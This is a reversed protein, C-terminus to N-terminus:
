PIKGSKVNTYTHQALTLSLSCLLYARRQVKCKIYHLLPAITFEEDNRRTTTKKKKRRRKEKEWEACEEMLTEYAMSVACYVIIITFIYTKGNRLCNIDGHMSSSFKCRYSVYKVTHFRIKNFTQCICLSISLVCVCM